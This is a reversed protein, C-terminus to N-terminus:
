RAALRDRGQIARWAAAQAAWDPGHARMPPRYRGRAKAGKRATAADLEAAHAHV